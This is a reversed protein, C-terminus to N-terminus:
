SESRELVVLWRPLPLGYPGPEDDPPPYYDHLLSREIVREDVEVRTQAPRHRQEIDLIAGTPAIEM